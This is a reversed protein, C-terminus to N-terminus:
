AVALVYGLGHAELAARLRPDPGYAEDGTV